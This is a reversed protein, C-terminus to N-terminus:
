ERGTGSGTGRSKAQYERYEAAQRAIEVRTLGDKKQMRRWAIDFAQDYTLWPRRSSLERLHAVLERDYEKDTM